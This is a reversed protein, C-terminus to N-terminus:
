NGQILGMSLCFKSVRIQATLEDIKDAVPWACVGTPPEEVLLKLERAMRAALVNM